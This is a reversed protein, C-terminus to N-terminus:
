EFYRLYDNQGSELSEILKKYQKDLDDVQVELEKEREKFSQILNEEKEIM